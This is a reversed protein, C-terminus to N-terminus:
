RCRGLSATPQIPVLKNGDLVHVDLHDPTGGLGLRAAVDGNIYTSTSCDDLLANVQVRKNGSVLNVAVTRLVVLDHGDSESAMTLSTHTTPNESNHNNNMDPPKQEETSKINDIVHASQLLKRNMYYDTILTNAAMWAVLVAGLVNTVVIYPLCVGFVLKTNRPRTGVIM